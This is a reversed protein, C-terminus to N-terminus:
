FCVYGNFILSPFSCNYIYISTYICIYIYIITKNKTQERACVVVRSYWTRMDLAQRYIYIYIYPISHYVCM